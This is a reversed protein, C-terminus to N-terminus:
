WWHCPWQGHNEVLDNAIVKLDNMSIALEINHNGNRSHCTWLPIMFSVAEAAMASDNFLISHRIKDAGIINATCSVDFRKKNIEIITEGCAFEAHFPSCESPSMHIAKRKANVPNMMMDVQMIGSGSLDHDYKGNLKFVDNDFLPIMSNVIIQSICRWSEHRKHIRAYERICAFLPVCRKNSGDSDVSPIMSDRICAHEIIGRRDYKGTWKMTKWRFNKFVPRGINVITSPKRFMLVTIIVTVPIESSIWMIPIVAHVAINCISMWIM